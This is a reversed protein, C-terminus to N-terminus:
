SALPTEPIPEGTVTVYYHEIAESTIDVVSRGQTAALQRLLSEDIGIVPVHLKRPSPAPPAPLETRTWVRDRASDTGRVFGEDALQALMRRVHGPNRNIREGLQAATLGCPAEDLTQVILTSGSTM